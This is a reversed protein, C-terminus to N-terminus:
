ASGGATDGGCEGQQEEALREKDPKWTTNVGGARKYQGGGAHVALPIAGHM